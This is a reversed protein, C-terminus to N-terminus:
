NGLYRKLIYLEHFMEPHQKDKIFPEQKYLSYNLLDFKLVNKDLSIFNLTHL